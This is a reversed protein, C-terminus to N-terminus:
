AACSTRENKFAKDTESHMMTRAQCNGGQSEGKKIWSYYFWWLFPCDRASLLTFCVENHVLYDSLLHPVTLGGHRQLSSGVIQVSPRDRNKEQLFSFQLAQTNQKIQPMSDEVGKGKGEEARLFPHLARPFYCHLHHLLICSVFRGRGTKESEVSSDIGKKVIWALCILLSRTLNCKLFNHRLSIVSNTTLRRLFHPSSSSGSIKAPQKHLM